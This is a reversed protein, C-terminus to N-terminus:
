SIRSSGAVTAPRLARGLRELLHFVRSLADLLGEAQQVHVGLAPQLDDQVGDFAQFLGLQAVQQAEVRQHLGVGRVAAGVDLVDQGDHGGGVAGFGLADEVAYVQEGRFALAGEGAEVM